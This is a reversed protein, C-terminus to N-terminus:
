FLWLIMMVGLFLLEYIGLWYECKGLLNRINKIQQKNSDLAIYSGYKLFPQFTKLKTVILKTKIYVKWRWKKKGKFFFNKTQLFIILQGIFKGQLGCTVSEVSEMGTTNNLMKCRYRKNGRFEPIHHISLIWNQNPHSILLPITYKWLWSTTESKINDAVIM